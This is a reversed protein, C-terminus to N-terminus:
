TGKRKSKNKSGFWGEKHGYWVVIAVGLVLLGYESVFDEQNHTQNNYVIPNQSFGPITSNHTAGSGIKNTQIQKNKIGGGSLAAELASATERGAIGDVSIGADSQFKRLATYTENGFNGDAGYVPLSYGLSLLASQLATVAETNGSGKKLILGSNLQKLLESISMSGGSSEYELSPIVVRTGETVHNPEWELRSM